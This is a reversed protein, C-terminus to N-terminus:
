KHQLNNNILGNRKAVTENKVAIKFLVACTIFTKFIHVSLKQHQCDKRVEYFRRFFPTKAGLFADSDLLDLVAIKCTHGGQFSNNPPNEAEKQGRHPKKPKCSKKLYM